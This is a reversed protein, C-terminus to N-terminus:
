RFYKKRVSKGPQSIGRFRACSPCFREIRTMGHIMRRDMQQLLVPDRITFSRRLPFTKYSPVQRGCGSCTIKREQGRKSTHLYHRTFPAKSIPM